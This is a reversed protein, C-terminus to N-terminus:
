NDGGGGGAYRISSITISGDGNVEFWQSVTETRGATINGSITSSSIVFSATAPTIRCCIGWVNEVTVSTSGTASSISGLPTDALNVSGDASAPYITFSGFSAPYVPNTLSITVAYSTAAPHHAGDYVAASGETRVGAATYFYSGAAVNSATATTDTVDTFSATGGGTKPLTVAPVASYNAGMLTINQAM